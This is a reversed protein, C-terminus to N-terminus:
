RLVSWDTIDNGAVDFTDDYPPFLRASGGCYGNSSLPHESVHFMRWFSVIPTNPERLVDGWSEESSKVAYIMRYTGVPLTMCVSEGSNVSVEAAVAGTNLNLVRAYYDYDYHSVAHLTM